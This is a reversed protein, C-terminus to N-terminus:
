KKYRRKSKKRKTKKKTKKKKGGGRMNGLYYLINFSQNGLFGTWFPTNPNDKELCEMLYIFRIYSIWDNGIYVTPKGEKYNSVGYLEQGFDGFLKLNFIKIIELLGFDDGSSIFNNLTESPMTEGVDNLEKMKSIVMDLVSTKSLLSENISEDYLYQPPALEITGGNLQIKYDMNAESLNNKAGKNINLKIQLRGDNSSLTINVNNCRPFKSSCSPCTPAPDAVGTITCNYKNEHDFLEFKNRYKIKRQLIKTIERNPDLYVKMSSDNNGFNYNDYARDSIQKIQDYHNPTINQKNLFNNNDLLHFINQKNNRNINLVGNLFENTLKEDSLKGNSDPDVMRSFQKDYWNSNNGLTPDINQAITAWYQSILVRLRNVNNNDQISLTIKGKKEIIYEDIFHDLLPSIKNVLKKWKNKIFSDVSITITDIITNNDNTTYKIFSKIINNCSEIIINNNTVKKLTEKLFYDDDTPEDIKLNNLINGLLTYFNFIAGCYHKFNEDIEGPVEPNISNYILNLRRVYNTNVTKLYLRLTTFIYDTKKIKEEPLKDFWTHFYNLQYEEDTISNNITKIMNFKNIEEQQPISVKEPFYIKVIQLDWTKIKDIIDELSKLKEVYDEYMTKIKEKQASRMGGNQINNYIGHKKGGDMDIGEDGEDIKGLPRNPVMSGQGRWNPHLQSYRLPTFNGDLVNQMQSVEESVPANKIDDMQGSVFKQTSGTSTRFLKNGRSPTQVMNGDYYLEKLEPDINILIIEELPPAPPLPTIENLRLEPPMTEKTQEIISYEDYSEYINQKELYDYFTYNDHNIYKSIDELKLDENEEDLIDDIRYWIGPELSGRDIHLTRGSRTNTNRRKPNTKKKISKKATSDKSAQTKRRSQQLISRHSRSLFGSSGGGGMRSQSLDNMKKTFPVLNQFFDHDTDHGILLLLPAVCESKISFNLDM